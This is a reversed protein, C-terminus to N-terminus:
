SRSALAAELATRKMLEHPTLGQSRAVAELRGYEEFTVEIPMIIGLNAHVIAEVPNDWDRNDPNVLERVEGDLPEQTSEYGTPEEM